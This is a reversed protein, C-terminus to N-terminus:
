WEIGEVKEILQLVKYRLGVTEDIRSHDYKLSKLHEKKKIIQNYEKILRLGSESSGLGDRLTLGLGFGFLEKQEVMDKFEGHRGEDVRDTQDWISM